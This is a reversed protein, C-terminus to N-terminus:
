IKPHISTKSFNMSITLLQNIYPFNLLNETNKNNQIPLNQPNNTKKNNQLTYKIKNQRHNRLIRLNHSKTTKNIEIIVKEKGRTKFERMQNNHKIDGIPSEITPARKKYEKQNEPDQMKIKMRQMAQEGKYSTIIRTNSKKKCNEQETCNKCKNTYYVKKGDNYENKFPLETGMPCTYSDKQHNYTFNHKHFKNENSYTKDKNNSAQYKNPILANIEMNEAYILSESNNYISDASIININEIGINNILEEMLPQFQNADTPGDCIINALIMKSDYDAAYGVNYLSEFSKKKNYMAFSDPDTMNVKKQIGTALKEEVKDKKELVKKNGDLIEKANKKVKNSVKKHDDNPSQKLDKFNMTNDVKEVIVDEDMNKIEEITTNVLDDKLIEDIADFYSKEVIEYTDRRYYLEDEKDFVLRKNIIEDIVKLNEETFLNSVSADAKFLTGDLGIHEFKIIGEKVGMVITSLLAKKYLEENEKRSRCLTRHNIVECGALFKYADNMRTQECIKRSSFISDIAGMVDIKVMIKRNYAHCGPTGEYKGNIESFDLGEVIEDVLFSIHGEPINSKPNFCIFRSQDQDYDRLVM